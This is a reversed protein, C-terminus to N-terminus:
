LPTIHYNGVTSTVSTRPSKSVDRFGNPSTPQGPPVDHDDGNDSAM